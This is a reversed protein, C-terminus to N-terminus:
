CQTDDMQNMLYESLKELDSFATCPYLMPHVSSVKVQLEGPILIYSGLSVRAQKM